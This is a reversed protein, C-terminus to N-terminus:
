DQDNAESSSPKPDGTPDNASDRTPTNWIQELLSAFRKDADSGREDIVALAQAISETDDIQYALYALVMAASVRIRDSEMRRSSYKPTTIGAREKLRTILSEIRPTSPLLNGAYKSAILEPRQSLLSQLNVSASLVMGAGIQAHLRGLQASVDRPRSALAHTFREEADFYREDAILQQGASMHEAYVNRQGANPDFLRDVTNAANGRLVELTERDVSIQTPDYLEVPNAGPKIGTGRKDLEKALPSNPNTIASLPNNPASADDPNTSDNPNTPDNPNAPNNAPDAQDQQNENAPQQGYIQERLEQMQRLLWADNTEDPKISSETDANAQSRARMDEVRQRMQDVMADYSTSLRANAQAMPNANPQDPNNSDANAGLGTSQPRAVLANAQKEAEESNADILPISTIGLLPSAVLGVPKRDIGETYVSLLAPQLTSTTTYTSSSRLTGLMASDQNDILPDPASFSKGRRDMAAAQVDVGIPSTINSTGPQKAATDYPNAYNSSNSRSISLNGMLNRPPVSGTTLAFQYQLADTGRIGMGALGSYLSDRRFAFLSDSGLDGSFEGAARYGLDGRFSLERAFSPRTPNIRGGQGPNADLANGQGLADQANATGSLAILLGTALARRLAKFTPSNPTPIMPM